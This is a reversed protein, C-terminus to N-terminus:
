MKKKSILFRVMDKFEKPKFSLDEQADSIDVDKNQEISDVIELTIIHEFARGTLFLFSKILFIPIHIKMRKLNLSDLVVQIYDNFTIPHPGSINYIRKKFNRIELCALIVGVVDEVYVPQIKKTGDGIIPIVPLKKILAITKSLQNDGPGYVLGLKLIVYDLYSNKVLEEAQRKSEGYVGRKNLDANVTGCFILRKIKNEQCAEILNKTGTVNTMYNLDKKSSRTEGALHIVCDIDKTAILLSNKDELSGLIFHEKVPKRVFSIFNYKKKFEPKSLENVLHKGIFGTAGTILINKYIM